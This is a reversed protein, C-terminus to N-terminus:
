KRVRDSPPIVFRSQELPTIIDGHWSAPGPKTLQPSGDDGLMGRLVAAVSDPDAHTLQRVFVRQHKADTADLRGVMEAVEAMTERAAAVLLSNTRADGLAVVKTQHLARQGQELGNAQQGRNQARGSTATDAYLGNLTEAMETADAHQLRFIRTEAAGILGVDFKAVIESVKRLTEETATVILSNSQDDAVAVVRSTAQRAESTGAAQQGGSGRDGGNPFGGFGGRRRNQDTASPMAFLQSIVTALDNAVTYKLPFVQRAVPPDEAESDKSKTDVEKVPPDAAVGPSVLAMAAATAFLVRFRTRNM